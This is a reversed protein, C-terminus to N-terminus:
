NQVWASVSLHYDDTLNIFIFVKHGDYNVRVGDINGEFEDDIECDAGYLNILEKYVSDASLRTKNKPKVKYRINGREFSGGAREVKEFIGKIKLELDPFFGTVLNRRLDERSM